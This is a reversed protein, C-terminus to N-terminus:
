TDNKSEREPKDVIELWRGDAELIKMLDKFFPQELGPIENLFVRKKPISPMIQKEKKYRQPNTNPLPEVIWGGKNWLGRGVQNFSWRGVGRREQVFYRAWENPDFLEKISFEGAGLGGVRAIVDNKLAMKKGGYISKAVYTIVRLIDGDAVTTLYYLTYIKIKV